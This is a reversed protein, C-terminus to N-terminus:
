AQNYKNQLNRAISNLEIQENIDLYNSDYDSADYARVIDRETFDCCVVGSIGRSLDVFHVRGNTLETAQIIQGNKDYQRGTNFKM